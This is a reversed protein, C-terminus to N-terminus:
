VPEEDNKLAADEIRDSSRCAALRMAMGEAHRWWQIGAVWRRSPLHGIPASQAAAAARIKLADVGSHPRHLMWGVTDCFQGYDRGIGEGCFLRSQVTWGFRQDSYTLWLADIAGLDQCRVSLLKGVPM